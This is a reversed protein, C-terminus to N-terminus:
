KSSLLRIQTDLSQIQDSVLKKFDRIEDQLDATNGKDAYLKAHLSNKDYALQELDYKIDELFPPLDKIDKLNELSLYLDANANTLLSKYKDLNYKAITKVCDEILKQDRLFAACNKNSVSIKLLSKSIDARTSSNLERSDLISGISRALAIIEPPCSM